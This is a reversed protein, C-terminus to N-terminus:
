GWPYIEQSDQRDTSRCRLDGPLMGPVPCSNRCPTVLGKGALAVREGKERRMHISCNRIATQKSPKRNQLLLHGNDSRYHFACSFPKQTFLQNNGNIRYTSFQMGGRSDQCPYHKKEALLRIGMRPVRAFSAKLLARAILM